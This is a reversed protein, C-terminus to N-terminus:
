NTPTSVPVFLLDGVEAGSRALDGAPVFLVYKVPRSSGFPTRSFAPISGIDTIRGVGEGVGEAYVVQLDVLTNRGVFSVNRNTPYVVAMGRGAPIENAAIFSFGEDRQSPRQAVWCDYQGAGTDAGGPNRVSATVVFLSSLSNSRSSSNLIEKDDNSGGCGGLSVAGLALLALGGALRRQLSSRFARSACRTLRLPIATLTLISDGDANNPRGSGLTAGNYGM